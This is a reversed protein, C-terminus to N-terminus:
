EFIKTKQLVHLGYKVGFLDSASIYSSNPDHIDKATCFHKVLKEKKPQLMTNWSEITVNYWEPNRTKRWFAMAEALLAISKEPDLLLSRIEKDQLGSASPVWDRVNDIRMQVIGMSRYQGSFTEEDIWDFINYQNMEYLIVSAILEPPLNFKIAQIRIKDQMMEIWGYPTSGFPLFPLVSLMEDNSIRSEGPEGSAYNIGWYGIATVLAITPIHWGQAFGLIVMPGLIGGVAAGFLMGRFAYTPVSWLATGIEMQGTWWGYAGNALGFVAGITGGIYGLGLLWPQYQVV